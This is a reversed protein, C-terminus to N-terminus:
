NERPPWKGQSALQVAEKQSEEAFQEGYMRRRYFEQHVPSEGEEAKEKERGAAERLKKSLREPGPDLTKKLLNSLLIWLAVIFVFQIFFLIYIAIM